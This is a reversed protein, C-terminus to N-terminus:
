SLFQKDSEITLKQKNIKEVLGTVQSNLKDIKSNLSDILGDKKLSQNRQYFFGIVSLTTLAASFYIIIYLM